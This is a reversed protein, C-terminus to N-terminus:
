SASAAAALDERAAVVTDRGARKAEYLAGDALALLHRTDRDILKSWTALGVSVTAKLTEGQWKLGQERTSEVLSQAVAEAAPRTTSPLIVCFEDGGTRALLDHERLRLLAADTFRRLCADGAQHGFRDNIAKFGDLDIALLAFPQGTRSSRSCEEDLRQFFRRRNAVGTLDDLVALDIIENRLRDIAMLLFGYNWVIAGFLGTALLTSQIFAPSALGALRDAGALVVAAHLGGSLIVLGMAIAALVMGPTRRGPQPRMLEVIALGLPVAQGAAFVIARAGPDDRWLTFLALVAMFAAVILGTETWPLTKGVFRCVGVWSLCFALVRLGNGILIAAASPSDRSLLMATAIGLTAVAAAAMWIRGAALQPHSRVVFLWVLAIALCNILHVSQLMQVDATM